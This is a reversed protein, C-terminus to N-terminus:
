RNRYIIEVRRNRSWASEDHGEVASREEGYSVVRIQASNAGLLTMLQRVANARREGLAINYERSGREDAHGELTMTTNANDALYRGHAEIVSRDAPNVQDADYEFYVVRNALLSAPDDLPNGQFGAGTASQNGSTSAGSNQETSAPPTTENSKMAEDGTCAALTMVTSFVALGKVIRLYM